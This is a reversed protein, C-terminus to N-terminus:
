YSQSDRLTRFTERTSEIAMRLNVPRPNPNGREKVLLFCPLSILAYALGYLFFLLPKNEQCLHGLGIAVFSGLYGLGIGIGGIRGRTKETSVDALLADYFQTAAQYGANAIIYCL